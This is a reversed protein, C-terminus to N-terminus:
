CLLAIDMYKYLGYMKCAEVGPGTQPCCVNGSDILGNMVTTFLVNPKLALEEAVTM